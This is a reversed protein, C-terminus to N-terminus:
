DRLAAYCRLDPHKAVFVCYNRSKMIEGWWCLSGGKTVAGSRCRIVGKERYVFAVHADKAYKYYPNKSFQLIM